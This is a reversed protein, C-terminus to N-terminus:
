PGNAYPLVPPRWPNFIVLRRSFHLGGQRRRPSLKSHVGSVHMSLSAEMCHCATRHGCGDALSRPGNPPPNFPPSQLREM